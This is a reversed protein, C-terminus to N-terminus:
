RYEMLIRLKISCTNLLKFEVCNADSRVDVLFILLFWSLVWAHTYHM